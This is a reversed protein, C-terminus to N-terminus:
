RANIESDKNDNVKDMKLQKIYNRTFYIQINVIRQIQFSKTSATESLTKINLMVINHQLYELNQRHCM